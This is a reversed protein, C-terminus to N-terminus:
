DKVITAIFILDESGTNEVSHGFGNPTSMTDGASVPSKEGNDDAVGTGSLFHYLETENEHVHYGVSAGPALRILSFLRLNKPIERALTTLEVTGTGGRMRETTHTEKRYIMHIAGKLSSIM